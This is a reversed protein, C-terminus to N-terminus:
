SATWLRMKRAKERIERAKAITIEPYAGMALRKEKGAYRYKLRWLKSGHPMVELYLGAGDSLKYPKERGKAAKCATDTLPM